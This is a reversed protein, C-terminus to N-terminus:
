EAEKRHSAKPGRVKEAVRQERSSRMGTGCSAHLSVPLQIPFFAKKMQRTAQCRPLCGKMGLEVWESVVHLAM